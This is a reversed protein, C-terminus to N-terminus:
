MFDDYLDTMGDSDNGEFDDEVGQRLHYNINGTKEEKKRTDAMRKVHNGIEDIKDAPLSECLSDILDQVFQKYHIHDNFKQCHEGLTDAFDEYEARNKPVMTMLKTEM